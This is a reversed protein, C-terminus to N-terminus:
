DDITSLHSAASGAVRVPMGTDNQDYRLWCPVARPDFTVWQRLGLRIESGADPASDLSKSANSRYRLKGSADTPQTYQHDSSFTM